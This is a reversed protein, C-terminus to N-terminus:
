AIGLQRLFVFRVGYLIPAEIFAREAGGIWLM